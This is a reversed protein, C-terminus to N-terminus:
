EDVDYYLTRHQGTRKEYLDIKKLSKIHNTNWLVGEQEYNYFPFKLKFDYNFIVFPEKIKQNIPYVGFIKDKQIDKIVIKDIALYSPGGFNTGKDYIIELHYNEPIFPIPQPSYPKNMSWFFYLHSAGNGMNKLDELTYKDNQGERSGGEFYALLFKEPPPEKIRFNFSVQNDIDSTNYLAYSFHTEFKKYPFFYKLWGLVEKMGTNEGLYVDYVELHELHEKKIPIVSQYYFRDIESSAPQFNNNLLIEKEKSIESFVTKPSIIKEQPSLYYYAIGIGLYFCFCLSYLSLWFSFKNKM